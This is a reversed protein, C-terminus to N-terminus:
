ATELGALCERVGHRLAERDIDALGHPDFRYRYHLRLLQSLAAAQSAPASKAAARSLWASLPESAERPVGRAALIQELQYFESDLGPRLEAPRALAAKRRVFRGRSRRITQFLLIGLVPLLALFLYERARSQGWRFKSFEFWVRSWGDSLFQWFPTADAEESVWVPPTTDLDHWAGDKWVLCWAHADRERVVFKGGSGEHVLYGVAYRAPIGLERLLLVTATAFYECHGMHTHVLFRGLATEEDTAHNLQTLWTSYIFGQKFHDEVRKIIENTSIVGSRHLEAVAEEMAARKAMRPDVFRQRFHDEVRAMIENTGLGPLGLESVAQDLAARESLPVDLDSMHEDPPADISPGPGYCADFVVVGPGQAIVEGLPNFQLYFAELNEIRGTGRPLPLLGQRIAGDSDELYCGIRVSCLNTKGPVLDYTTNHEKEPGVQEFSDRGAGGGVSWAAQIPKYIRYSAERLYSPPGLNSLTELRVVIRPSGKLNGISGIATQTHSAETHGHFWSSWWGPNYNTLLGQLQGISRQGLFGCAVVIGLVAFWVAFSIRPSRRPWLAWTLLVCLGWFYMTDDSTHISTSFLVLGFYPFTVNVPYDPPPPKGAKIARKWRRQLLPSMIRLPIGDRGSFAQAAVFLFLMMPLWRFFAAASHSTATGASRRVLLTPNSFFRRVEAFGENSTFAYVFGALAVLSCFTRIRIFDEDSMDWHLRFWRPCELLFGMLIGATLFGTQWGWFVLTAGLLFPPTKM